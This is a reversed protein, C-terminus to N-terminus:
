ADGEFADLLEDPLADFDRAIRIQGKYRGSKRDRGAPVHPTLEVYPKGARAIVVREGRCALEALQSLRTKAEHMNVQIPQMKKKGM